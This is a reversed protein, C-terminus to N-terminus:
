LDSREHHCRLFFNATNFGFVKDCLISELSSIVVALGLTKMLKRIERLTNFVRCTRTLPQAVIAERRRLRLEGLCRM